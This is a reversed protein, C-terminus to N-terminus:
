WLSEVKKTKENWVKKSDDKDAELAIMRGDKLPILFLSKINGEEDKLFIRSKGAFKLNKADRYEYWAFKGRAVLWRVEEKGKKTKTIAEQPIDM